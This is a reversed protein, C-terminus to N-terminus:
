ATPDFAGTAEEDEDEDEDADGWIFQRYERSDFVDEDIEEVGAIADAPVDKATWVGRDYDRDPRRKGRVKTPDVRIILYDGKREWMFMNAMEYAAFQSTAFFVRPKWKSKLWSGARMISTLNDVDTVHYLETVPQDSM